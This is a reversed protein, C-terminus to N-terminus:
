VRRGTRPPTKSTPFVGDSVGPMIGRERFIKDNEKSIEDKIIHRHKDLYTCTLAPVPLSCLYLIRRSSSNYASTIWISHTGPVSNQEDILATCAKLQQAMEVSVPKKM